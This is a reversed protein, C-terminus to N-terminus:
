MRTVILWIFNNVQLLMVGEISCVVYLVYGTLMPHISQLMSVLSSM